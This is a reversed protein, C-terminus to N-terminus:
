TAKREYLADAIVHALYGIEVPQMFEWGTAEKSTLWGNSRATDRIISVVRERDRWVTEIDNSHEEPTM